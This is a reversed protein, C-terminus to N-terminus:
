ARLIRRRGLRASGVDDLDLVNGATRAPPAFCVRDAAFEDGIEIGLMQPKIRRCRAIALLAKANEQLIHGGVFDFLEL